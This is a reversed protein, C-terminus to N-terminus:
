LEVRRTASQEEPEMVVRAKDSKTSEVMVSSQRSSDLDVDAGGGVPPEVAIEGDDGKRKTKKGKSKKKAAKAKKEEEFVELLCTQDKDKLYREACLYRTLDESDQLNYYWEEIDEEYKEAFTFCARHMKSVEASPKDWLEYPIGLEVKVGKNVLGHLTQMTESMGKAYRLSGKREAHVNYQLINECIHPEHIAETLRLESTLYKFRKKKDLGHGTEIVEKSKASEALRAKLETAFYKCIECPSPERKKPDTSTYPDEDNDDDDKTGFVGDISVLTVAFLFVILARDPSM